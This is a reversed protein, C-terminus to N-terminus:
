KAPANRREYGQIDGVTLFGLVNRLIMMLVRRDVGEPSASL